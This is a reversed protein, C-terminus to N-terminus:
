KNTSKKNEQNEQNEQNKRSQNVLLGCSARLVSEFGYRPSGDVMVFTESIKRIFGLMTAMHIKVLNAFQVPPAERLGMIVGSYAVLIGEWLDNRLMTQAPISDDLPMDFLTAQQLLTMTPDAYRTFRSGIGLAIDGLCSLTPPKARSELTPSSLAALLCGVIDDCYSMIRGEIARAVDSTALVATIYTSGRDRDKLYGGLYPWIHPMYGSFDPGIEKAMLGATRLCDEHAATNPSHLITLIINIIDKGYAAVGEGGLVAVSAEIVGILYSQVEM